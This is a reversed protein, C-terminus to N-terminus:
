HCAECIFSCIITDQNFFHLSSYLSQLARTRKKIRPTVVANHWGPPGEEWAPPLLRAKNLCLHYVLAVWWPSPLPWQEWLQVIPQDQGHKPDQFCYLWRHCSQVWASSLASCMKQSFSQISTESSSRRRSSAWIANGGLRISDWPLVHSHILPGPERAAYTSSDVGAAGKSPRRPMSFVSALASPVFRASSQLNEATSQHAM